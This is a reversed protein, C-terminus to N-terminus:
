EADALVATAETPGCVAEFAERETVFLCPEACGKPVAGGNIWGAAKLRASQDDPIAGVYISFGDRVYTTTAPNDALLQQRAFHALVQAETALVKLPEGGTFATLAKALFHVIEARTVGEAHGAYRCLAEGEATPEIILTWRPSFPVADSM